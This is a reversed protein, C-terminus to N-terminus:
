KDGDSDSDQRNRIRARKAIVLGALGQGVADGLGTVLKGRALDDLVVDPGDATAHAIPEVAVVDVDDYRGASGSEGPAIYGDFRHAGREFFLDFSERM